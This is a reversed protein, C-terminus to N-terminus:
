MLLLRANNLATEIERQFSKVLLGTFEMDVGLFSDKTVEFIVIM